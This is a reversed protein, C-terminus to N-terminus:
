LQGTFNPRVIRQEQYVQHNHAVPKDRLLFFLWFCLIVPQELITYSVLIIIIIISMFWWGKFDFYTAFERSSRILSYIFFVAGVLGFRSLIKGLGSISAIEAGLLRAWQADNHGGYGLIPHNMFDNLDVMFSAFRQPVYSSGYLISNKVLKDLDFELTSKIKEYMFPLTSAYAAMAIVVLYAPLKHKVSIDKNSIIFFFLVLLLIYGTTSQSSLLAVVMVWFRYNNKLEFRTIVQNAFIGLATLCAFSGPEWAFGASRYLLIENKIIPVTYFGLATDVNGAGPELFAISRLLNIFPWGLLNTLIYFVIAIVSLYYVLNQYHIFFDRGMAKLAFYSVFLALMHYGFFRPHVVMFKLTLAINLLLFCITFIIIERSFSIKRVQFYYFMFLLPLLLVLPHNWETLSRALTSSRATFFLIMGVFIVDVKSQKFSLQLM